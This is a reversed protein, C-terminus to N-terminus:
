IGAGCGFRGVVQKVGQRPPVQRAPDSAISGEFRARSTEAIKRVTEEDFGDTYRFTVFVGIM